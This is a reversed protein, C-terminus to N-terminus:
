PCCWRLCTTSRTTGAAPCSFPRAAARCWTYRGHAGWGPGGRLRTVRPTGVPARMRRCRGPGTRRWYHLLRLPSRPIVADPLPCLSAPARKARSCVQDPPWLWWAKEGVVNASWSNSLAVDHHLPTWTGKPGLYLFRYDDVGAHGRCWLLNLWDDTAWGPTQYFAPLGRREADRMAHWDKLYSGAEEAAGSAADALFTAAAPLHTPTNFFVWM